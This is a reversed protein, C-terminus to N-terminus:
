TGKNDFINPLYNDSAIKRLHEKFFTDKSIKYFERSLVQALTQLRLGAVKNSFLSQCLHKEQYNQSIKLFVKKWLVSQHSSRFQETVIKLCLTTLSWENLEYAFNASFSVNIVRQNGWISTCILPLFHQNKPFNSMLVLRIVM